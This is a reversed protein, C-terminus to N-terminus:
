CASNLGDRAVELGNIKTEAHKEILKKVQESEENDLISNEHRNEKIIRALEKRLVSNKEGGEKTMKVVKMLEEMEQKQSTGEPAKNKRKQSAELTKELHKQLGERGWEGRVNAGQWIWAPLSYITRAGLSSSLANVQGIIFRKGVEKNTFLDGAKQGITKEKEATIKATQLEQRKDAIEKKIGDAEANSESKADKQSLMAIEKQLEFTEQEAQKQRLNRETKKAKQTEPKVATLKEQKQTIKIKNEQYQKEKQLGAAKITEGSEKATLIEAELQTIRAQAEQVVKETEIQATEVASKIETKDASDLSPDTENEKIIEENRKSTERSKSFIKTKIKSFLSVASEQNESQENKPESEVIPEELM